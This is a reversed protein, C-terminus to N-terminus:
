EFFSFFSRAQDTRDNSNENRFFAIKFSGAEVDGFFTCPYHHAGNGVEGNGLVHASYSTASTFANTFNVTCIGTGNDTVSSVNFSGFITNNQMNYRLYARCFKGIETGASDKITPTTNTSLAQITAVNLTSM